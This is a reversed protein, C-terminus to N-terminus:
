DNKTEKELQKNKDWYPCERCSFSEWNLRIAKELCEDYYPCYIMRIRWSLRAPQRIWEVPNPKMM